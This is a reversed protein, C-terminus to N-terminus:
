KRDEVAKVFKSMTSGSYAPLLMREIKEIQVMSPDGTSRIEDLVGGRMDLGGFLTEPDGIAQIRIPSSIRVNDVLITPGVCRLSSRGVIRHENIAVAEAGASWLENVVRLVDTDHIVLDAEPIGRRNARESDQLTITIGPGEVAALGAYLKTEQLTENLVKAQKTGEGIANELKTKEERLKSVEAALTRNEELLDQEIKGSEIRRAQDPDLAGIRRPVESQPLWALTLMLGLVLSLGSVPLVWGERQSYTRFPNM